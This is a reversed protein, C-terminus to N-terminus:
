RVEPPKTSIADLRKSLAKTKEEVLGLRKDIGDVREVMAELKGSVIGVAQGLDRIAIRMLEQNRDDAVRRHEVANEVGLFKVGLSGVEAKIGRLGDRVETVVELLNDFPGDGTRTPRPFGEYPNIPTSPAPPDITPREHFDATIPDAPINPPGDEDM